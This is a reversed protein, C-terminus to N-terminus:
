GELCSIVGGVVKSLALRQISSITEGPMDELSWVDTIITYKAGHNIRDILVEVSAITSLAKKYILELRIVHYKEEKMREIESLLFFDEERLVEKLCKVLDDPMIYVDTVYNYSTILGLHLAKGIDAKLRYSTLTVFGIASIIFNLIAVSDVYRTWYLAVLPLSSLFVTIMTGLIVVSTFLEKTVGLVFLDKGMSIVKEIFGGGVAYILIMSIVFSLILSLITKPTPVYNNSLITAKGNENIVVYDFVNLFTELYDKSPITYSYDLVITQVDCERGCVTDLIRTSIPILLLKDPQEIKLSLGGITGISHVAYLGPALEVDILENLSIKVINVNADTLISSLAEGSITSATDAVIYGDDLYKCYKILKDLLMIEKENAYDISCKVMIIYYTENGIEVGKFVQYLAIYRTTFKAIVDLPVLNRKVMLMSYQPIVDIVQSTYAYTSTYSVTFSLIYVSLLILIVEISLFSKVIVNKILKFAPSTLKLEGLHDEEVFGKYKLVIFVLFSVFLTFTPLFVTFVHDLM